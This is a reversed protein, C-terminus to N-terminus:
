NRRLKSLGPPALLESCRRFLDNARIGKVDTVTCKKGPSSTQRCQKELQLLADIRGYCGNNAMHLFFRDGSVARLKDNPEFMEAPPTTRFQAYMIRRLNTETGIARCEAATIQSSNNVMGNLYDGSRNDGAEIGLHYYDWARRLDRPTGQGFQYLLGLNGYARPLKLAAAKEFQLRAQIYDPAHDAGGRYVMGLSDIAIANGTDADARFWDLAVDRTPVSLELARGLIGVDSPTLKLAGEANELLVVVVNRVEPRSEVFVTGQCGAGMWNNLKRLEVKDEASLYKIGPRLLVGLAKSIKVYAEESLNPSLATRALTNRV